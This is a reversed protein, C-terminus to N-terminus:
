KVNYSKKMSLPVQPINRAKINDIQVKFRLNEDPGTLVEEQVPNSTQFSVRQLFFNFSLLYLYSYKEPEETKYKSKAGKKDSSCIVGM